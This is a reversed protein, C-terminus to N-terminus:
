ETVKKAKKGGDFMVEDTEVCKVIMGVNDKPYNAHCRMNNALDRFTCMPVGDSRQDPVNKSKKNVTTRVEYFWETKCKYEVVTRGISMVYSMGDTFEVETLDKM